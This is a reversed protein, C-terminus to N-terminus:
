LFLVITSVNSKTPEFLYSKISDTIPNRKNNQYFFLMFLRGKNQLLETQQPSNASNLWLWHLLYSLYKFHKCTDRYSLHNHSHVGSRLTAHEFGM